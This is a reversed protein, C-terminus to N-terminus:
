SFLLLRCVVLSTNQHGVKRQMFRSVPSSREITFSSRFRYRIRDTFVTLTTCLVHFPSCVESNMVTEVCSIAKLEMEVDDKTKKSKRDSLSIVDLLAEFGGLDLFEMLFDEEFTTLADHLAELYIANCDVKIIDLFHEPSCLEDLNEEELPNVKKAPEHNLKGM